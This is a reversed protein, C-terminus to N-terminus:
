IPIVQRRLTHRVAVGIMNFSAAYSNKIALAAEAQGTNANVVHAKVRDIVTKVPWLVSHLLLGRILGYERSSRRGDILFLTSLEILADATSILASAM